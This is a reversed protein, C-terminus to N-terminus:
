ILIAKTDLYEEFGLLGNERGYGSQKRGGFPPAQTFDGGNVHVDGTHMKRAVALAEAPAGHVAASLGYITDNAIAIAEEETDYPIVSLVPGFIEEQAIRMSNDVDTFVVPQIFYGNECGKPVEGVIMKAGEQQGLEIYSKVKDFTKRDILPGIDVTPDLPDGVKFSASKEIILEEIKEKDERPIVMRTKGSCVQGTNMFCGYLTNEVAKEYDASRLIVSASKGGLELWIQKINSMAHIGVDKGGEISGAYTVKHVDEHGALFRGVEDGRGIVLNFVGEPFGVAEVAEALYYASLPAIQSPKVVVCNGAVMAPLMKVTIQELPYNWPPLGAVVGVPEKRVIYDDYHEEYAYDIALKACFKAENVANMVQTAKVTNVPVGLEATVTAAIEDLHAELYDGLKYMLEGREIATMSSWVPFAAKAAAVALNVDEENGAPVQGIIEHTAPNEVDIYTGSKGDVWKGGIFLKKKEM